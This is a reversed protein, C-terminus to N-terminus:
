ASAGSLDHIRASPCVERAIGCLHRHHTLYIVQGSRAMDSFLRFTEEARFDDFTEMIDDAIFPIPTRNRAFEFYGAARLALYLQFRTGKSMEAVNKSRGDAGTAILVEGDKGPQSTLNAYAGRSILRLAESARAMMSSRHQERYLRLAQETALIGARLKLCRRAGDEIALLATRRREEIAAAQGDGGIADIQRQADNHAAYADRWENELHEAQASLEALEGGLAVPDVDGLATEAEDLTPLAMTEVIEGAIEAIENRLLDRRALQDLTEAVAVLTSVGFHSTMDQKRLTLSQAHADLERAAADLKELDSAREAKRDRQVRADRVRDAIQRHLGLPESEDPLDLDRALSAVASAFAKRDTEMKSIREDLSARQKVTTALDAAVNLAGRVNDVTPTSGGEGLWTSRVAEDWNAAWQARKREAAESAEKRAELDRRRDDLTERRQRRKAEGDLALQAAALLAADDVPDPCPLQLAALAAALRARLRDADKEAAALDAECRRLERGVGLAKERRGLWAELSAPPWNEPLLPSVAAIADRMSNALADADAAAGARQGQARACEVEAVALARANEQLKTLNALHAFRGAAAADDRRLLAEFQDASAGDLRKRHETWAREREGRIANADEDTVLGAIAALASREATLRAIEGELRDIESARKAIRDQAADAQARWSQLQHAEPVTLGVLAEPEGRWPALAALADALAARGDEVQRLALRQRAAHDGNRLADAAEKLRILLAEDAGSASADAAGLADAAAALRRRAADLEGDAQAKAADLGSVTEILGRLREVASPPLVFRQPEPDDDHGIQRLLRGITLDLERREDHRSPLDKDATLARAQAAALAEFRGAVGLAAADVVIADHEVLIQARQDRNAQAQTQTKIEDDRLRAVEERWAAPATPLAELPACQAHLGNLKNLRPRAALLRQIQEKRALLDRRKAGAEDYRSKAHKAAAALEAHKAAQTDIQERERKLEGLQKQLEHLEGSRANPRYFGDALQRAEDLSRSLDALGSSGSFLLQGLDGQAKLIAEGGKELTEDDLSFMTRYADRDIGGLEALIANDALSQGHLDLLSNQPRKIRVFERPGDRLAIAAGIRMTPYPHLFGYPSQLPIAYLLDLWAAFLTSKGAENPGYVVHLDPAGAEADGFDVVRDTFKGYRTLDLRKLRM